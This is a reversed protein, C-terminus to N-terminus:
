KEGKTVKVGKKDPFLKKVLEASIKNHRRLIVKTDRDCLEGAARISYRMMNLLNINADPQMAFLLEVMFFGSATEHVLLM